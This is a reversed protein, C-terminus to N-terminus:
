KLPPGKRLIRLRSPVVHEVTETGVYCIVGGTYSFDNTHVYIRFLNVTGDENVKCVTANDYGDTWGLSVVDGLGIERSEALKNVASLLAAQESEPYDRCNPGCCSAFGRRGPNHCDIHKFM